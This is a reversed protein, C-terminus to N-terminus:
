LARIAEVLRYVHTAPNDPWRGLPRTDMSKSRRVADDARDSYRDVDLKAKNYGGLLVRLEQVVESSTKAGLAWDAHHLYLWLEFCPNSIALRCRLRKRGVARRCVDSLQVDPWRDKDVVLWLQDNPQLEYQEAFEKLRQYVYKPASKCDETALVRVQVRSNRFVHSEFYQRETWKGEAAVIILRTDRRHPIERDLPRKRRSTLGM